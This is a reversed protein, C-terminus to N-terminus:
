CTMTFNLSWSIRFDGNETMTLLPVSLPITLDAKDLSKIPRIAFSKHIRYLIKWMEVSM